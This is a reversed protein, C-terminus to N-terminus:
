PGCPIGLSSKLWQRSLDHLRSIVLDKLNYFKAEFCQKKYCILMSKRFNEGAARKLTSKLWQRSLDHLRSNSLDRIEPPSSKLWQRSLRSIVTSWSISAVVKLIQPFFSQYTETQSIKQNSRWIQRCLKQFICFSRAGTEWMIKMTSRSRHFRDIATSM